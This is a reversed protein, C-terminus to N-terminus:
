IDSRSRSSPPWNPGNTHGGRHQRFAIDGAVLATEIPPFTNTGLDKKGLLATCRAPTPLGWSCARPTWGGGEVELSGSGVFVPRPRLPSGTRAFGGATTPPLLVPTNSSTAPWGTTNPPPPWTKWRNGMAAATCSPGERVRPAWSPLRLVRITRWRVLAAKGYRSLGEIGVRKADVAPDTELYDLARSAGWAWARLAGWDDPKRPQGKNVLGIIGRTLSDGKDAQVSTPILVAYGWGKALIQEKWSPGPPGPPTPPRFGPPFVFGFEMVVPVPATAGAPTTVTLDINVSVHPYASNDVRGVLKKTVARFTGVTDTQTNVVEWTVKPTDAPARGYVERDFHAVIEPRRQQWWQRASTVKKGDDTVLPDPLTTYPTARAEDFNAARPSKPNGDPGRRLSDIGLLGLLRQHDQPATLQVPPPLQDPAGAQQGAVPQTFLAPVFLLGLLFPYLPKM